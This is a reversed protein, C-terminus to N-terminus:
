KGFGSHVLSWLWLLAAQAIVTSFVLTSVIGLTSVVVFQLLAIRFICGRVICMSQCYFWCKSCGSCLFSRDSDSINVLSLPIQRVIFIILPLLLWLITHLLAGKENNAQSTTWLSMMTGVEACLKWYAKLSAKLLANLSRWVLCERLTIKMGYERIVNRIM